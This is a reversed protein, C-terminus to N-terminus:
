HGRSHKKNSRTRPMKFRARKPPEWPEGEVAVLFSVKRLMGRVPETDPLERTENLRRFGLSTITARKDASYGIASKKWTAKLTAAVPKEM